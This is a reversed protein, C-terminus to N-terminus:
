NTKVQTDMKAFKDFMNAYIKKEKQLQERLTKACVNLKTQAAKNNPDIKLCETFDNSALQPEGMGLYATGRRFLAKENKPDLELAKTAQNRAEFFENIKLNALSVNLYSALLLADREKQEEVSELDKDSDLFSQIKKYMKIALNYKEQKFYNTGKEKFLKCQEIKEATDLSWSEKAKEFNKLTVVYEVKANPPINWESCGKNGFAYQPKIILKSKEGKKFREIAKEIGPIIKEESGEGITFTVDREDFINGEYKGQLHVEVVAGDNPTTYGEGPTIQLREIGGDKKPSLDEGKWDIVEVDFKLTADPPITPPSGAKGYAYDPACTLMAREGKKMTAVGIDWAKIVSGKGLDFQFPENRDRSSDFKTGDTLTGTYHVRVKCGAPPLEDGVGESLIEKLVGGDKNPSIDIAEPM